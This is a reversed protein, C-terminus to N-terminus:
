GFLRELESYIEPAEDLLTVTAREEGKRTIAAVVCRHSANSLTTISVPAGVVPTTALPADLVVVNGDIATITAQEVGTSTHVFILSREGVSFLDAIAPNDSFDSAAVAPIAQDLVLTSNDIVTRIRAGHSNDDFLDTVLTVMDGVSAVVGELETEVLWTRRQRDIQLLDFTARRRVLAENSIARYSIPEIRPIDTANDLVVEIENESFDDDEDDFTARFGAVRAPFDINFRIDATNRPSFTQVPDDTSRDRFWDVSFTDGYVPKAFGATAIAALIESISEGAFLANCEYGKSACEARWAVMADNDILDTDLGHHVLFDYLFQRYHTAPNKSTATETAWASGNWDMVYRAAQVTVGKVNQGKSRLAIQATGPLQCPYEDAIAGAQLVALQGPYSAQDTFIVWNGSGGATRRGVFLSEVTGGVTYDPSVIGGTRGGYGRKVRWELPGKPYTAEDLVVHVGRRRSYINAVDRNGAGDDFWAAAQWQVGTSGDSLDWATVAPVTAWFWHSIEGGLSEDEFLEDWRIRIDQKVTNTTRGRFHIEPLSVWDGSGGGKPRFQMRLPIFVNDSESTTRYLSQLQLKIVVEELRDHGPTSFHLWRPVSNAPVSQDELITGEQVYFSSATEGINETKTIKDVFTYTGDEEDGDIIETTIAAFDAVGTENVQIDSLAHKGWLGFLRDVTEIGDITYLRPETIDPPAIRRSGVVIPLYSEKGFPNSDTEVDGYAKSDDKGVKALAPLEPPFLKNILLSGGFSIAASALPGAIPGLATLLYPATVAVVATLAILAVTRFLNRSGGGQPIFTFRLVDDRRPRVYRWMERPVREYMVDRGPLWAEIGDLRGYLDLVMEEITQGAPVGVAQWGVPLGAPKAHIIIQNM